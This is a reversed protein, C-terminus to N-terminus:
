KQDKKVVGALLARAQTVQTDNLQLFPHEIAEEATARKNPDAAM